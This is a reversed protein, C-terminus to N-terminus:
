NTPKNRRSGNYGYCGYDEQRYVIVVRRGGGTGRELLGSNLYGTVAEDGGSEGYLETGFDDPFVRVHGGMDNRAVWVRGVITKWAQVGTLDHEAAGIDINWGGGTGNGIVVIRARSM